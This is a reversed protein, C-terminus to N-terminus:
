TKIIRDDLPKFRAPTKTADPASVACPATQSTPSPKDPTHFPNM